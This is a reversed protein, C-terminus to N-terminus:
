GDAHMTTGVIVVDTVVVSTDVVVTGVEVIADLVDDIMVDIKNTRM